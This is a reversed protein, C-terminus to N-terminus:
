ATTGVFNASSLQGTFGTLEILGDGNGVTATADNVFVYTNGGFAFSTAHAAGVASAVSTVAEALTAAAAVNAVQTNNLAQFTTGTIASMNLVDNSANFDTVKVLDAAIATNAAAIQTADGTTFTGNLNGLAKVALTDNGDGLTITVNHSGTTATVGAATLNVVDNGAGGNVIVNGLTGAATTTVNFIDNGAGGNLTLTANNGATANITDNGAGADVTLAVASTNTPAVTINDAGTGGTISALTAADTGSIVLGASSSSGNVATLETLASIDVGVLKTADTTGASSLNLNLTGFQTSAAPAVFSLDIRDTAAAPTSPTAASAAFTGQVTVSTAETGQLTLATDANANVYRVTGATQSGFNATNTASFATQGNSLTGSNFVPSFVASQAVAAAAYYTSASVPATATGSALYAALDTYTNGNIIVDTGAAKFTDSVGQASATAGATATVSAAYQAKSDLLLRDTGTAGNVLALALNSISVDTSNQWYTLENNAATRGFLNQYLTDITQARTLNGYVGTYEPSQAFAASIDTVSANAQSTWYTLGAQEAPRGFYALYLQQVQTTTVAM